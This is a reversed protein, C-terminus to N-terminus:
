FYKAVVADTYQGERLYRLGWEQEYFKLDENTLMRDFEARPSVTRCVITWPYSADDSRAILVYAKGIADTTAIAVQVKSEEQTRSIRNPRSYERSKDWDVKVRNNRPQILIRALVIAVAFPVLGLAELGLGQIWLIVCLIVFCISGYVVDPHKLRQLLTPFM